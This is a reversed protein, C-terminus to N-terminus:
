ELRSLEQKVEKYKDEDISYYIEQAQRLYERAKNKKGARKYLLGLNRCASALEPRANIEKAILIARNFYNEAELFNDMELYLEGIMDYDGAMNLKNAQMEDIKLGQHYSDLAKQYQKQFSYIEGINFYYDSLEHTLKLRSFIKFSKDYFEKATVFDDKNTFLLGLNFYDCALNYKHRYINQRERNIESSKTLLELALDYNKKDMHWVAMKGLCDAENLKDRNERALALAKNYFDFAKAYEGQLYYAWGIALYASTLNKKDQRRESNLAYAYYYNLAKEREGLRLYTDGLLPYATLFAPEKKIIDNCLRIVKLNDGQEFLNKSKLFLFFTSPNISPFWMYLYICVSIVAATLAFWGLSRRQLLVAKKIKGAPLSVKAKFLVFTPDGYLLYSLWHMSIIGYEKILKLRGSRVCEGVPKGSILQTYFEKAFTLSVPDEIKRIAGIYHRVGSFLFASAMSYNREQYDTDILDSNTKASHCANSFILAPLSVSSGMALIDQATFRGDSLVWGSDKPNDAEYECHGSFHVIDYDCLNKKVYLRDIHTSKFDIRVSNRKQDFQKKINVGELYASKLDNTPNALVLMKHIGPFSRYRAANAERKTRVLRGVNFNLCLFNNGDCLLEWPINILEEDISLILDLARTNRLTDKVAKTLLHDWLLQGIRTLGKILDTDQSRRRDLKNLISIIEQCLNDVEVFSVQIQSYHRLTSAIDKQEFISMKLMHDQRFIELVLVDPNQM